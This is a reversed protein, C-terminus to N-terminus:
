RNYKKTTSSGAQGIYKFIVSQPKDAIKLNSRCQYHRKFLIIFGTKIM